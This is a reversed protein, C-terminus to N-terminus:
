NRAMVTMVLYQQVYRNELTDLWMHVQEQAGFTYTSIRALMTHTNIAVTVTPDPNPHDFVAM